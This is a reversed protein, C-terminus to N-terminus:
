ISSMSSDLFIFRLKTFMLFTSKFILAPLFIALMLNPDIKSGAYLVHMLLLICQLKIIAFCIVLQNSAVIFYFIVLLLYM